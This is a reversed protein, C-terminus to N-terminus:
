LVFTNVETLYENSYTGAKRAKAKAGIAMKM